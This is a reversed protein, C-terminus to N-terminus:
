WDADAPLLSEHKIGQRKQAMWPAVTDRWKLYHETTQHTRFAEASRYAEYLFFVTPDDERRLVDFRLNGPEQRTSLHNLKTAEAFEAEKGPTVWVTVCVVYM